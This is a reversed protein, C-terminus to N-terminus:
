NVFSSELGLFGEPALSTALMVTNIDHHQTWTDAQRNKEDLWFQEIAKKLPMYRLLLPIKESIGPIKLLLSTKETLLQIHGIGALGICLGLERFALRYSAPLSLSRSLTLDQLGELSADLILPVIRSYFGESDDMLVIRRADGLIGGIGLPDTTLLSIVRGIAAIDAIERTLVPNKFCEPFITAIRRLELYTALGDIPDHQGMSPVLPRSLDISMKWYMMRRSDKRPTYVFRDHATQALELAWRLYEPNRTTRSVQALAHMWRTLYHYYQGDRDWERTEDYPEGEAREPLPKGIRLGGITPHQRGEDESLGSIWGTRQDDDRHRGLIEHVQNVLRLALDMFFVHKTIEFLGLYNCVAFADTWLYRRPSSDASDLGTKKAYEEMFSIAMDTTAAPNM